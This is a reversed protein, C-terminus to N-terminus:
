ICLTIDIDDLQWSCDDHKSCHQNLREIIEGTRLPADPNVRCLMARLQNHTSIITAGPDKTYWIINLPLEERHAIISARFSKTVLM